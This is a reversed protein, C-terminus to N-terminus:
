KMPFKKLAAKEHVDELFDNYVEDKKEETFQEAFSQSEKEFETMDAPKFEDLHLIAYGQNTAIINSLCKQPTLAFFDEYSEKQIGLTYLLQKQPLLSTQELTLGLNKAAQAFDKEKQIKGLYENAKLKALQNAKKHTLITIVKDKAEAFEPIYSPRKEKLKLVLYGKEWEVPEAVEGIELAFINKLLKYAEDMKLGPGTELDGFPFNLQKKHFYASEFISFKFKEALIKLDPTDAHEKRIAKAKFKTEVKKQVGADEPFDARVYEVKITPPVLFDHKHRAYYAHIEQDTLNVKDKYDNTSILTHSIKAKTNQKKYEELIQPSSFTLTDTIKKNLKEAILSGRIAHEFDSVEAQLSTRIIQKYLLDDFKKKRFFIKYQAIADIVDKDSVKIKQNQAERLLIIQDWTQEELNLLPELTEYMQGYRFKTLILNQFYVKQYEEVTIKKGFVEGAYFKPKLLSPIKTAITLIIAAGITAGVIWLLKETTKKTKFKKLM